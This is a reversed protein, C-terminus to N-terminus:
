LMSKIKKQLDPSLNNWEKETFPLTKGLETSLIYCGGCGDGYDVSYNNKELINKVSKKSEDKFPYYTYFQHDYVETLPSDPVGPVPIAGYNDFRDTICGKDILLGNFGTNNKQTYTFNNIASIRM